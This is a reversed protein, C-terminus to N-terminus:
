AGRLGIAGRRDESRAGYLDTGLAQGDPDAVRLRTRLVAIWRRRPIRVEGRERRAAVMAAVVRERRGESADVTDAKMAAVTRRELEAGARCSACSALHEDLGRTEDPDVDGLAREAAQNMAEDCKM